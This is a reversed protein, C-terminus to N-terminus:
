GRGAEPTAPPVVNHRPDSAPETCEECLGAERGYLEGTLVFPHLYKELSGGLALVRRELERVYQEVIWEGSEEGDWSEPMGLQLREVLEAM